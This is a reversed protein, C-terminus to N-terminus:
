KKDLRIIAPEPQTGNVRLTIGSTTHNNYRKPIRSKPIVIGSSQAPGGAPSNVDASSAEPEDLFSYVAVTFEGKPIGDGPEYTEWSVVKGNVIEGRSPRNGTSELELVGVPLPQGDLLVQCDLQVLAPRGNGGCGTFTMIMSGALLMSRLLTSPTLNM